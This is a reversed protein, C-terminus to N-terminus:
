SPQTQTHIESGLEFIGDRELARITRYDQELVAPDEHMLHVFGPCNFFSTTPEIESGIEAKLRLRFFSPLARLAAEGPISKVKGRAHAFLYVNQAHRRLSYPSASQRAFSAPDVYCDLALDLGSLGVAARDLDPVTVGDLRAGIEVLVPGEQCWMVEAHAPGYKIELADLVRAVYAQMGSEVKGASPLLIVRDYICDHGHMSIKVYRWLGTFAHKGACSVSNVIYETGSLFEQVLVAENKLGLKNTGGCIAAFAAKGADLTECIAVQDTWASKIPKVVFKKLGERALWAEIEEWESARIQRAVRLGAARCAEIMLYKDRRAASKRTGNSNALGLAESLRDALEVGTETGAVVAQPSLARAWDVLAPMRGDFPYNGEYDVPRFSPAMSPWIVPTSQVHFSAFGRARYEPAHLNGSSYGDVVIINKAM